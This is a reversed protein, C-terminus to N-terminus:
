EMAKFLSVLEIAALASDWGKNSGKAGAREMAQQLNEVTLVGFTIPLGSDLAASSVGRAVTACVQDYHATEGRIVCGVCIIADYSGSRAMRQAVLPIEMAGPVRAITIDGEGVGHRVLCDIAGQELRECIFDNFRSVVMGIRLGKGDLKGIVNNAAM